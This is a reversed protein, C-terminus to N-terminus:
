HKKFTGNGSSGLLLSDADASRGDSKLLRSTSNRDLLMGLGAVGGNDIIGSSRGNTVDVAATTTGKADVHLDLRPGRGDLAARSELRALKELAADLEARLETCTQLYAVRYADLSQTLEMRATSEANVRSALDHIDKLVISDTSHSNATARARSDISARIEAVVREVSATRDRFARDKESLVGLEARVEAFNRALEENREDLHQVREVVIRPFGQDQRAQSLNASFESRSVELSQQLQRRLETHALDLRHAQEELSGQLQRRLESLAGDLLPAQEQLQRQLESVAGDLRQAQEKQLDAIQLDIKQQEEKQQSLGAIIIRHQSRMDKTVEELLAMVEERKQQSGAAIVKRDMESIQSQQGELDRRLGKTQGALSAMDVELRAMREDCSSSLSNVTHGVKRLEAGLNDTQTQVSQAIIEQVQLLIKSREQQFLLKVEQSSSTDSIVATRPRGCKRCFVSDDMYASGCHPCTGHVESVAPGRMLV